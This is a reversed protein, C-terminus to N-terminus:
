TRQTAEMTGLPTNLNSEFNIDYFNLPFFPTLPRRVIPQFRFNYYIGRSIFLLHSCCTALGSRRGWRWLERQEPTRWQFVSSVNWLHKTKNKRETKPNRPFEIWLKKGNENVGGVQIGYSTSNLKPAHTNRNKQGADLSSLPSTRYNKGNWEARQRNYM